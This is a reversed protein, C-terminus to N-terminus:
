LNHAKRIEDAMEGLAQVGDEARESAAATIRDLAQKASEGVGPHLVNGDHEAVGWHFGLACEKLISGVYSYILYQDQDKIAKTLRKSTELAVVKHNEDMPIKM